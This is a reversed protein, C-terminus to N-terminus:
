GGKAVAQRELLMPQVLKGDYTTLMSKIIDDSQDLNLTKDDKNFFEEIFYFVNAAYMESAHKPVYTALETLGVLKIGDQEIDHGPKIGEVNGGTSAACDVVVSGKKMVSLMDKTIIIPAKRGFLQATTIVIDAQSCTKKMAERQLQIQEDTLAKAYGQDTQGTDGLDIKLFNAGLSKVQEEAVPRTDFAIVNAGLRKATAIAQLGAVGAGVVFVRAPSLTGAPTMMMPLVQNLRASGMTVAVYGALSAQSSLVDMKQARTSRPVFEMSIVTVGRAALDQLQEVSDFPKTLGIVTIPSQLQDTISKSLNVQVLCQAKLCDQKSAFTAGAKEFDDSTYLHAGYGHELLVSCGLGVIKKVTSPIFALRTENSETLSSLKM